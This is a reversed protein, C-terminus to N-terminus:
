EHSRSDGVSSAVTLWARAFREGHVRTVQQEGQGRERKTKECKGGRLFNEATPDVAREAEGEAEAALGAREIVGTAGDHDCRMLVVGREAAATINEAAAEFGPGEFVGLM